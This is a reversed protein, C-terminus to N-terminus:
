APTLNVFDRLTALFNTTTAGPLDTDTLYVALFAALAEPAATTLAVDFALFTAVTVTFSALFVTTILAGLFATLPALVVTVNVDSLPSLLTADADIL